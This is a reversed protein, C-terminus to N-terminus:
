PRLLGAGQSFFHPPRLLILYLASSARRNVLPCSSILTLKLRCPPPEKRPEDKDLPVKEPQPDPQIDPRKPAIDLEEKKFETMM